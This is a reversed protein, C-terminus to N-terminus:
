ATLRKVMANVQDLSHNIDCLPQVHWDNAMYAPYEMLLTAIAEHSNGNMVAMGGGTIFGYCCDMTKDALRANLWSKAADIMGAPPLQLRRPTTTILFKM